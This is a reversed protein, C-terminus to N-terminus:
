LAAGTSVCGTRRCPGAIIIHVRYPGHAGLTVTQEIDATRSPGSIFSVARPLSGGERILDWADEMTRVVRDRRIVAVHTEPLVSVSTPTEPGSLTVLTGTEAIACCASTVGVLDDARAGRAEMDVGAGPWDLGALAPWCVIRAPVGAAKLYRAVADPVLADHAVEECTSALLRARESFRAIVDLADRPAPSRPHAGIHDLVAAREEARPVPPKGQRERIRALIRERADMVRAGAANSCDRRALGDSRTTEDAWHPCISARPYHM